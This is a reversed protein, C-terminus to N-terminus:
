LWGIIHIVYLYAALGLLFWGLAKLGAYFLANATVRLTDKVIEKKEEGTLDDSNLKYSDESPMKYNVLNEYRQECRELKQKLFTIQRILEKEEM